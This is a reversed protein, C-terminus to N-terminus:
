KWFKMKSFRSRPLSNTDNWEWPIGTGVASQSDDRAPDTYPANSSNRYPLAIDGPEYYSVQQNGDLAAVQQRYQPQQQYQPQQSQHFPPSSQWNNSTGTAVSKRRQPQQHQLSRSPNSEINKPLLCGVWSGLYFCNMRYPKERYVPGGTEDVIEIIKRIDRGFHPMSYLKQVVGQVDKESLARVKGSGVDQSLVAVMQEHETRYWEFDDLKDRSGGVQVKEKEEKILFDLYELTADNYPTISNKRLFITFETAAKKVEEYEAGCERIFRKRSEIIGEKVQILNANTRLERQVFEDDVMETQPKLEYRIHLHEQWQHGCFKCFGQKSGETHMAYCGILAPDAIADEQAELHCGEHCVTKYITKIQEKGDLGVGVGSSETDTCKSNSCVTNPKNTRTAKLTHKPIKLKKELDKKSHKRTQLEHINDENLAITAKMRQAIEAIPKTLQTIKTRAENLSM